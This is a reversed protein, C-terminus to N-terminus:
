KYELPDLAIIVGGHKLLEQSKRSDLDPDSLALLDVKEQSRKKPKRKHIGERHTMVLKKRKPIM